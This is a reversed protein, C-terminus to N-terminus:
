DKSTTGERFGVGSTETEFDKPTQPEKSNRTQHEGPGPVPAPSSPCGLANQGVGRVVGRELSYPVCVVTVTLNQGQDCPLLGRIRYTTGKRTEPEIERTAPKPNRIGFGVVEHPRPPDPAGCYMDIVGARALIACM